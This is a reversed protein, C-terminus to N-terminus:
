KHKGYKNFEKYVYVMKNKVFTKIDEYEVSKDFGKYLLYYQNGQGNPRIFYDEKNPVIEDLMAPRLLDGEDFRKSKGISSGWRNREWVVKYLLQKNVKSHRSSHIKGRSKAM